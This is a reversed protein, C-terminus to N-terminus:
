GQKRDNDRESHGALRAILLTPRGRDTHHVYNHMGSLHARGGDDGGLCAGEVAEEGKQAMAM